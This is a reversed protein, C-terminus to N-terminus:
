SMRKDEKKGTEWERNQLAANTVKDQEKKICKELWNIASNM